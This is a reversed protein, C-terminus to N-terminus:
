SLRFFAAMTHCKAFRVVLDGIDWMSPDASM